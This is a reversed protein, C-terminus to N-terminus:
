PTLEKIIDSLWDNEISYKRFALYQLEIDKADRIFKKTVTAIENRQDDVSENDILASKIDRRFVDLLKRREDNLYDRDIKCTSITYTFRPDHSYISGSKTFHIYGYPNTVEPNVFRPLETSDCDSSSTNIANINEESNVFEFKDGDIAFNIGKHQNCTACGMLLNDWSFALWYYVKKPRFHEVQYQEIKQECYACKNHYIDKLATRIDDTKYRNNYRGKDIYSENDIVELRRAHTTRPKIPIGDPFNTDNPIKLSDPITDYDKNIKIM